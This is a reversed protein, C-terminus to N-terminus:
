HSIYLVAHGLGRTDNKTGEYGNKRFERRLDSLFARADIARGKDNHLPIRVQTFRMRTDTATQVKYAGNVCNHAMWEEIYESLTMGDIEEDSLNIGSNSDTEISIIIERGNNAIGEFHLMIGQIFNDFGGALCNRLQAGLDFSAIPDSDSQLTAVQKNTYSDLARLEVHVYKRLGMSKVQWFLEVIIDSKAVNLVEDLASMAADRQDNALDVANQNKISTLTQELDELPFERQLMLENVTSIATKLDASTIFAEEYMPVYETKGLNDDVAKLLNNDHFWNKAPVVMISPKQAVQQAFTYASSSILIAGVLSLIKKM